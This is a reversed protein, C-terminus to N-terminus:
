TDTFTKLFHCIYSMDWVKRVKFDTRDSIFIAVEVRKQNNNVHRDKMQMKM